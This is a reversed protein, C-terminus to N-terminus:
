STAHGTSARVAGTDAGSGPQGRGAAPLHARPGDGRQRLTVRAAAALLRPERRCRAAFLDPREATHRARIDALRRPVSIIKGTADATMDAYVLADM